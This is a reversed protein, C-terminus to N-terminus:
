ILTFLRRGDAQLRRRRESNSRLERLRTAGAASYTPSVPVSSVRPGLDPPAGIAAPHPRFFQPRRCRVSGCGNPDWELGAAQGEASNVFDRVKLGGRAEKTAPTVHPIRTAAISGGYDRVITAVQNALPFIVTGYGLRSGSPDWVLGEARCAPSQIFEAMTLGGRAHETAPTTLDVLMAEMSGGNDRIIDAVQRALSTRGSFPASPVSMVPAAAAAGTAASAPQPTKAEGDSAPQPTKAEGNMAEGDHEAAAAASPQQWRVVEHGLRGGGDDWVLGVAQCEPCCIFEKLGMGGRSKKSGAVKSVLTAKIHEGPANRVATAVKEALKTLDATKMTPKPKKPKKPKKPIKPDPPTIHVGNPHEIRWCHIYRAIEWVLHVIVQKNVYKNTWFSHQYHNCLERVLHCTDKIHPHGAAPLQDIRSALVTGNPRAEHLFSVAYECFIRAHTAVSTIEHGYNRQMMNMSKACEHYATTRDSHGPQGYRPHPASFIIDRLACWQQHSFRTAPFQPDTTMDVTSPSMDITLCPTAGYGSAAQAAVIRAAQAVSGAAHAAETPPPQKSEGGAGGAPPAAAEAKAEAEAGFDESYDSDDM